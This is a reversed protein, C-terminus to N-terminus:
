TIQRHDGSGSGGRLRPRLRSVEETDRQLAAPSLEITRSRALYRGLTRQLSSCELVPVDGIEPVGWLRSLRRLVRRVDTPGARRSM